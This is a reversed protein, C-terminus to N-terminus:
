LFRSVEKKTSTLVKKLKAALALIEEDSTNEESIKKTLELISKNAEEGMYQAIKANDEQRARFLTTINSAIKELTSVEKEDKGYKIYIQISEDRINEYSLRQKKLEEKFKEDNIRAELNDNTIVALDALQYVTNLLNM